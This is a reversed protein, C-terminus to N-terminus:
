RTNLEGVSARVVTATAHEKRGRFGRWHSATGGVNDEGVM